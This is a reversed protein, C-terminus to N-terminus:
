NRGYFKLIEDEDLNLKPKPKNNEENKELTSIIRQKGEELLERQSEEQICQHFHPKCFYGSTKM